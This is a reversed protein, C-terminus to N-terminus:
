EAVSFYTSRDQSYTFKECACIHPFQSQPGAIGKIPNRQLSPTTTATIFLQPTPPPPPRLFSLSLPQITHLRLFFLHLPQPTLPIILQLIPPYKPPFILQPTPPYGTAPIISYTSLNSTIPDSSHHTSLNSPMPDSSHYTSLNTPIPLSSHYTSPNSNTPDSSQYTSLNSHTPVQIQSFILQFTRLYYM